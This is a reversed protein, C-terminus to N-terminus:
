ASSYVIFLRAKGVFSTLRASASCIGAAMGGGHIRASVGSTTLLAGGAHGTAGGNRKGRFSKKCSTRHAQHAGTRRNNREDGRESVYHREVEASIDGGRGRRCRPTSVALLGLLGVDPTEEQAAPERAM